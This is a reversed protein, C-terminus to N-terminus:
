RERTRELSTNPRHLYGYLNAGFVILLCMLFLGNM